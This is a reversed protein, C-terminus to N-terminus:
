FDKMRKTGVTVKDDASFRQLCNPVVDPGDFHRDQNGPNRSLPNMLKFNHPGSQQNYIM